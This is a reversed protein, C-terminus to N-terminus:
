GFFPLNSFYMLPNFRQVCFNAADGYRIARAEAVFQPVIVAAKVCSDETLTFSLKSVVPTTNAKRPAIMIPIM